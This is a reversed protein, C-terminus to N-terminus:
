NIKDLTISCNTRKSANEEWPIFELNNIAGIIEPAIGQKFGELISYKHDLQYSGEIGSVGRKQYNEMTYQNAM